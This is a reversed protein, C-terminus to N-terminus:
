ANMVFYLFFAVYFGDSWRDTPSRTDYDLVNTLNEHFETYSSKLFRRQFLMLKTFFYHLLNGVKNLLSNIKARFKTDILRNQNSEVSLLNSGDIWSNSNESAERRVMITPTILQEESLQV